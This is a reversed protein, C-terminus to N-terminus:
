KAARSKNPSVRWVEAALTRTDHSEQEKTPHGKYWLLNPQCLPHAASNEKNVVSLATVEGFRECVFFYKGGGNVVRAKGITAANHIKM